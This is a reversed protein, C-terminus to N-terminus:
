QTKRSYGILSKMRNFEENIQKTKKDETSELKINLGTGKDEGTADKIPQPAKQYAMNRAKAFKNAKRKANIKKNM